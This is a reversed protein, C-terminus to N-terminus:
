RLNRSALSSRFETEPIQDCLAVLEVPLRMTELTQFTGDAERGFILFRCRNSKIKQIANLLNSESSGYFKPDAIRRITDAGVFFVSDPFLASKTVFNAANTIVVAADGYDQKLRKTLEEFSIAPKDANGICVEFAAPLGTKASGITLIERHGDHIPNFSGALICNKSALEGNLVVHSIEGNLLSDFQAKSPEIM